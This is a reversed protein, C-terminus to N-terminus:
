AGLEFAAHLARVAAEMQERRVLCWITTHSDASQLIDIGERALAAVIKAMIGPVGAIGAGVAAVKACGPRVVPEFGSARLLRVAREADADAVTYAIRDPSISIFDVSIGHQAMVAFVRHQAGADAEVQIQTIDATHAVGTVYRDTVRGAELPAIHNTVLTGEDKSRTSRVRIPINKQMAIEVARPHIVKAGQYALNCIETYTAYRLRRADQVIRPDATMIGEVDTFIDVYEAHLAVGLAAATTDSGGRGLTTVDGDTTVGQFGMVVVVRGAELERCIRDPRVELIRASGYDHDTIIGAQGGSLVTVEHGRGRLLSAFVVASVAEGCSMLIDLDRKTVADHDDLLGLLTDTAYPDGKRGMASVVVVVRYGSALADEVHGAAALRGERTAVSTGGFKQVVIKM